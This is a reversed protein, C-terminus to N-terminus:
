QRKSFPNLTVYVINALHCFVMKANVNSEISIRADEFAGAIKECFAAPLKKSVAEVSDRESPHINAISSVGISLMMVKRLFDVAYVCFAKQKERGLAVIEDNGDLLSVLDRGMASDLMSSLLPAYQVSDSVEGAMDMAVGISGCSSRAYSEAEDGSVGLRKKLVGAVEDSSSPYLRIPLTRSRITALVKEPAHTVFLFYTDPSPEEVVKLLRNAAEANMREPLWIVMYKNGGEYSKLSLRDLITKAEAVSIIGVKDEIGTKEYLDKETFYPNRAALEMWEEIFTDSVPKKSSGSKATVNVPFAFHLDPHQLASIKRCTPCTGCSDEGPTRNRCSLYQIFALVMPLAGCGDREIFMMSHSTRGCDAMKMLRSKLDGNGIVEKFQM